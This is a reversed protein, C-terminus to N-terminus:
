GYLVDTSEDCPNRKLTAFGPEAHQPDLYPTMPIKLMGTTIPAKMQRNVQIQAM